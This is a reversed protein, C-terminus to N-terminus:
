LDTFQGDAYGGLFKFVDTDTDESIYRVSGDGMGFNCGGPHLSGPSEFFDNNLGGPTGGTPFNDTDFLNSVGGVAWGDFSWKACDELNNLRQLEGVMITNSLGDTVTAVKVDVGYTIIGLYDTFRDQATRGSERGGGRTFMSVVDHTCSANPGGPNGDGNFFSNSSSICGGYDTGGASWQQFMNPSFEGIDSRRSPCYFSPLDKEALPRNEASVLSKTFDWQDRISGQEMYPLMGLLWSTGKGNAGASKAEIWLYAYGPNEPIQGGESDDFVSTFAKPFEGLASEYNLVSLALQRLNNTCQMRRAAERAAQVAPLLLGVLVGIIAIVVLLEVLTFAAKAKRHPNSRSDLSFSIVTNM